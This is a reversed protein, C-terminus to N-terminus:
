ASRVEVPLSLWGRLIGIPIRMGKEPQLQVDPLLDAFTELGVRAELRALHSGLCFHIGHSLAVHDNPRRDADFEYPREFHRPDRNAAAFMVMAVDGKAIKRGHLAIDETATRALCNVPSELRLLEEVMAPHRDRESRVSELLDPQHQLLLATNSLLNTTTENGAAWLLQCLGVLEDPKLPSVDSESADILASFLDDRPKKRRAEILEALTDYMERMVNPMEDPGINASGTVSTTANWMRLREHLERPIGLIEAIVRVPFPSTFAQVLDISAGAEVSARLDHVLEAAIERIRAERDQTTRPTFAKSLIRRLRDHHPPDDQILPLRPIGAEESRGAPGGQSSFRAPDHLVNMVDDYRTIAWFGYTDSFYAPADDRLRDWYPYPAAVYDPENFPLMEDMARDEQSDLPGHDRRAAVPGVPLTYGRAIPPLLNNVDLQCRRLDGLAM